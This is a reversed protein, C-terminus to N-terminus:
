NRSFLMLMYVVHALNELCAFCQSIGCLLMVLNGPQSCQQQQQPTISSPCMECNSICVDASVCEADTLWIPQGNFGRSYHTYLCTTLCAHATHYSHNCTCSMLILLKQDPMAWNNAYLIQLMVTLHIVAFQAGNDMATCRWSDLIQICEKRFVFWVM